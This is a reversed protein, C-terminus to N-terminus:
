IEDPVEEKKEPNLIGEAEKPLAIIQELTAKAGKLVMDHDRPNETQGLDLIVYDLCRQLYEELVKWRQDKAFLRFMESEERDPRPVKFKDKKVNM